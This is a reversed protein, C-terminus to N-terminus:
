NSVDFALSYFKPVIAPAAALGFLPATALRLLTRAILVLGGFIFLLWLFVISFLNMKGWDRIWQIAPEAM